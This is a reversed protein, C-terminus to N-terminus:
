YDYIEHKNFITRIENLYEYNKTIIKDCALLYANIFYEKKCGHCILDKGYPRHDIKM